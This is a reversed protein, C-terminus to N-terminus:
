DGTKWQVLGEQVLMTQLVSIDSSIDWATDEFLSDLLKEFADNLTDLTQEIELRSSRINDGQVPQSCLKKYAELLKVTTPLYYEMLKSIDELSDPDEHVREFIKQILLEMHSVKDSIEKASIASGCEKIKRIYEEGEKTVKQFREKEESENEKRSHEMFAAEEQKQQEIRQRQLSEYERYTKHSVILCTNDRDLHGQLFWGKDIMKRIDKVVYSISKRNQSALEKVNCYTRGQLGSIYSRYRKLSSLMSSGKWTMVASLALFPLLISLAIRIGIPIQGLFVSVLLLCVVALGLGTNLVCGCVTLVLGGAKVSTNKKFLDKRTWDAPLEKEEQEKVTKQGLSNKLNSYIIERKKQATKNVAEGATRMGRQVSGVAENVTNAISKNLQSFNQSNVADEVINWIDKGIREWDQNM